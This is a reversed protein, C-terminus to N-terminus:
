KQITIEYHINYVDVNEFGHPPSGRLHATAGDLWYRFPKGTFPDVSLPVTVDTLHEPLRGKHEAAYLRLAEVNRLIALRQELRDQANKVKLLAPTFAGFLSPQTPKKLGKHLAEVQWAPFSMFKMIEDREVEYKREEDLLLIQDVPFRALKDERFGLDVLRQRAALVWAKDTRHRNLWARVSRKPQRELELIKDLHKVLAAIEGRTMPADDHMEHFESSILIREGEMGKELSIMPHPLNTLAWYLNPCGPQQLLEDLPDIAVFCIAIGVLDGILTSHEGMHRSLAFMTKATRLADDVQGRAVEARFRVQLSNALARMKQVDPILLGIGDTKLKPLIEWDPKDLRAAWDVMRLAAPSLSSDGASLDEDFLVKLYNPIPNGPHMERLEPLLLYRLAPKPAPMAQVTLRIVTENVAPKSDARAIPVLGFLAFCCGLARSVSTKM